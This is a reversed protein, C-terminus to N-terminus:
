FKHKCELYPYLSVETGADTVENISQNISQNIFILNKVYHRAAANDLKLGVRPNSKAIAHQFITLNM